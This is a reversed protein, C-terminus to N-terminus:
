GHGLPEGMCDDPTLLAFTAAAALSMRTARPVGSLPFILAMTVIRETIIHNRFMSPSRGAFWFKAFGGGLNQIHAIETCDFTPVIPPFVFQTDMGM